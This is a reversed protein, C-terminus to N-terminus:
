QLITYIADYLPNSPKNAYPGHTLDHEFKHSLTYHKIIGATTLIEQNQQQQLISNLFPLYEPLFQKLAKGFCMFVTVAEPARINYKMHHSALTTTIEQNIFPDFTTEKGIGKYYGTALNQNCSIAVVFYTKEEIERVRYQQVTALDDIVPVLKKLIKIWEAHAYLLNLAFQYNACTSDLDTGQLIKTMRNYMNDASAVVPTKEMCRASFTLFLAVIIMIM